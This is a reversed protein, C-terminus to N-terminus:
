CDEHSCGDCGVLFFGTRKSCMIGCVSLRVWLERLPGKDLGGIAIQQLGLVRFPKTGAQM